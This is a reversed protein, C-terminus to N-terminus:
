VIALKTPRPFALRSFGGLSYSKGGAQKSAQWGHTNNIVARLTCILVILGGRKRM